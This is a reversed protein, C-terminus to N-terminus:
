APVKKPAWDTPVPPAPRETRVGSYAVKPVERQRCKLCWPHKRPDDSWHFVHEPEVEQSKWVLPIGKYILGSPQLQSAEDVGTYFRTAPGRHVPTTTAGSTSRSASRQGNGASTTGSLSPKRGSGNRSSANKQLQWTQSRETV